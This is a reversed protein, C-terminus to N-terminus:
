LEVGYTESWAAVALDKLKQGRVTKSGKATISDLRLTGKPWREVLNIMGQELSPSPIWDFVENGERRYISRAAHSSTDLSLTAFENTGLDIVATTSFSRSGKAAAVLELLKPGATRLKPPNLNKAKTCDVGKLNAGSLVADQFDAGTVDAGTLDA